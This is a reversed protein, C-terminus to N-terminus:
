LTKEPHDPLMTKIRAALVELRFPKHLIETTPPLPRSELADKAYGTILLVRLAPLLELAADAVQRGNLGGPLGIDAVMVDFYATPDGAVEHLAKLATQGDCAEVVACGLERLMESVFQRVRQEDDVVLIKGARVIPSRPAASGVDKSPTARFAHALYIHVSTGQGPSSELLLVGNSQAVFGHVQSLGLGTGQGAPKTTFFPELARARVDPPMGTGSDTVKIRVYDGPQASWGLVDDATLKEHSTEILLTGGAPLMADRANIALNILANEFQNSDCLVPRDGDQLRLELAIEPGLTQRILPAVNSILADMDVARPDLAQQRSFALLRHTLSAARKISQDAADLYHETEKARGQAIRRRTLEISSSLGQLMNNFDHAIGGTLQGIAQMKQAQRLVDEVREREAVEELLRSYADTAIRLHQKQETLDTLVGCLLPTDGDLLVSASVNVPVESGDSRCFVIEGRAGSREAEELLRGFDAADAPLVFRALEHGIIREQSVGLMDSVRRNCYLVTGGPTLTVAGEQIQEILYRYPRDATELTYVFHDGSRDKVVVADFDGSRIAELTEQCEALESELERVRALLAAKGKLGPENRKRMM